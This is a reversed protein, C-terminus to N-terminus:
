DESDTMGPVSYQRVADSFALGRVSKNVQM